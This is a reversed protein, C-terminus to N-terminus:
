ATCYQFRGLDNFGLLFVAMTLRISAKADDDGFSSDTQNM